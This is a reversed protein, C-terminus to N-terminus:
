DVLRGRGGLFMMIGYELQKATFPKTIYYDAGVQYGELIENDKDRASIMIVPLHALEPMKKLEAMLEYGNMGPMMIDLLALKIERGEIGSLAEHASSFSIFSHGLTELMICIAERADDDDEVVLILESGM